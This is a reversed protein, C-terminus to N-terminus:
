CIGLNVCEQYSNQVILSCGFGVVFGIIQAILKYGPVNNFSFLIGIWPLSVFWGFAFSTTFCCLFTFFIADILEIFGM